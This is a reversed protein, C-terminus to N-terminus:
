SPSSDSDAPPCLLEVTWGQSQVHGRSRHLARTQLVPVWDPQSLCRRWFASPSPCQTSQEQPRNWVNQLLIDMALVWFGCLGSPLPDFMGARSSAQTWLVWLHCGRSSIRRVQTHLGGGPDSHGRRRWQMHVATPGWLDKSISARVWELCGTELWLPGQALRVCPFLKEPKLSATGPRLQHSTNDLWGCPCVLSGPKPQWGPRLRQGYMKGMSRPFLHVVEFWLSSVYFLLGKLKLHCSFCEPANYSFKYVCCM